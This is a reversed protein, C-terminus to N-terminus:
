LFDSVNRLITVPANLLTTLAALDKPDDIAAATDPAKSLIRAAPAAITPQNLPLQFVM